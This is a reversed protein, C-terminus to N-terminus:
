TKKGQASQDLGMNVQTNKTNPLKLKTALVKQSKGQENSGSPEFSRM